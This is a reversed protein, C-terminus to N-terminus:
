LDEVRDHVRVRLPGALPGERGPQIEFVLQPFCVQREIAQLGKRGQDVEIYDAEAQLVLDAVGVQERHQVQAADRKKRAVAREIMREDDAAARAGLIGFNE